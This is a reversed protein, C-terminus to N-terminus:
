KQHKGRRRPYFRFGVPAYVVVDGKKELEAAMGKIDPTNKKTWEARVGFDTLVQAGCGPCRYLDANWIQPSEKSGIVMRVGNHICHHLLGSKCKPCPGFEKRVLM